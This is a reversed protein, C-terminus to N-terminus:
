AFLHPRTLSGAVSKLASPPGQYVVMGGLEAADPGIEILWDSHRLVELHHEVVVVTHGARTLLEFQGLLNTVDSNSLGSTPEDFILVGPREKGVGLMVHVLKLRQAEGGSFSSTSQGLNVYGLGLEIVADLITVVNQRDFFFIRAEAVTMELIEILNKNKLKISLVDDGFRRGSCVPCKVEMEGLFSLDEVVLGMGRCTECRGGPTNFSFAGPKLGKQKAEPTSSLLKRLEDMVGLYTAINSRSSRGLAGQSMLLVQSHRKVIEEPGITASSDLALQASEENGGLAAALKPFLTHQILSTKGSGSVGCVATLKGVPIKVSVNKLNHLSANKLELYEFKNKTEVTEIPSQKVKKMASPKGSFTLSGGEHGAKPGIEILWDAAEIISREHEVVVVTNRFDRMERLIELLNQSDRAHLGATPEDLCFMTETLASGLCRAMNIRQLEGGSLTRSLRDLGLYGVGIKNLYGLRAAGEEQAEAIGKTKSSDLDTMWKELKLISLASVEAINKGGIKCALAQPILRSGSCDPCIIYSKFRSAHIRYHPKYRKSDLWKFYGEIGDFSSKSGKGEKLWVWDADTYDAFKKKVIVMKLARASKAAWEYCEDHRGFNWPVVGGESLSSDLDPIIKKWNLETASGFGQCRSCAGLPHNFSFLALTPEIYEIGCCELSSSFSAPEKQDGKDSSGEFVIQAFGRGVKLALGAAEVLRKNSDSKIVIRDVVVAAGGLKPAPVDELRKVEGQSFLKNFGQGELQGKLEKAKLGIWSKLPALVLVRAGEHVRKDSLIKRSITEGTEKEVIRGCKLCNIQSARSFITRLLDNMESLTGVTSRSTAGSRTQRVAIAAPLNQIRQVKPKPLAKLYQRAFSSLSEVYRRYAESYLTDFVLSSKGSGSVGTVVTLSYLPLRVDINKLNNTCANHLLVFESQNSSETM